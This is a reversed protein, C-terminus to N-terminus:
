AALLVRDRGAHKADYLAADARAIMAEASDGPVYTALGTSVTVCIPEGTEMELDLTSIAMRLRECCVFADGPSCDPLIIAFEEGGLRGVTDQGRMVDVSTTAIARIVADGAPHGYTDNIRKFHDIDLLALALPTGNRKASAIARDLSAMFERRNALGTLEDTMAHRRLETRVRAEAAVARRVAGVALGALLMLALGAGSLVYQYAESAEARDRALASQQRLLTTEREAVLALKASITKLALRGEGSRVMTLAKEKAGDKHAQVISQLLTLMKQFDQEVSHAVVLQKSDEAVLSTLERTLALGSQGSVDLPELYSPDSTLLFGREGRLANLAAIEIEQVTNLVAIAHDKSAEARIREAEAQRAFWSSGILM